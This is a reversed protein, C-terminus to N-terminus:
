IIKRYDAIANQINKKVRDLDIIEYKNRVKQLQIEYYRIQNESLIAMKEAFYEPSSDSFKADIAIIPHNELRIAVTFNIFGVDDRYRIDVPNVILATLPCDNVLSLKDPMDALISAIFSQLHNRGDEETDDDSLSDPQASGLRYTASAERENQQLRREATDIKAIAVYDFFRYGLETMMDNDLDSLSIVAAIMAAIIKDESSARFGKVTVGFMSIKSETYHVEFDGTWLDKLLNWVQEARWAIFPGVSRPDMVDSPGFTPGDEFPTWKLDPLVEAIAPNIKKCIDEFLFYKM